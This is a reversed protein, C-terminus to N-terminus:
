RTVLPLGYLTVQEYGLVRGAKRSWYPEFHHRKVLHGAAQEIWEPEVKANVLSFVRSTELLFAAVLWKPGKKQLGSGPFINFRHNRTGQYDEDDKCGVQGLFATLLARHIAAYSAPRANVSWGAERARELLQRRIDSWERMRLFHLFNARCWKRLQNVSGEERTEHYERWLKLFAVFDSRPDRWQDHATDAAEQAEMPRQRPDQISLVAALTAAEEVCDFERGGEMLRALRVDLPWNALARGLRTLRQEQDLAGLETLLQYGDRVLRGDPPDLFPFEDLRGLRLHEMQLIVSALNTRVIEPETFEPREALDDEGFLRICIGPGLRGCRGARQDASAQSIPEIPLRQVKTRLSYRSIRALGSDIVFKIRPVTLSTEAVNTALVIRRQSGPHFIRQQEAASLRGFLPLLETDRLRQAELHELADRIDREGPLFVLIDGLPDERTLETVADALGDLLDREPDNGVPRYRHEVPYSRGSVEVVPANDFHESFRQTDITASTIIVRLDPRRPLLQKLYGLLFDVNLGREHAEDIIITDYAQLERDRQTEALLIGDTMVKILSDGTVKEDFRVQYGVAGGVKTGLEEAVRAAISRAAIRRPQTVGIWGDVGRGAELCLKPLQTTKGSGTAGSVVIVQNEALAAAIDGARATIPLEPDLEVRLGHDLRQSRRQESAEIARELKPLGRDIPLRKQLRKELGRIRRELAARDSGFVRDLRAKLAALTSTEDRQPM